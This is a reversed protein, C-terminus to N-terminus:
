SDPPLYIIFADNEWVKKYNNVLLFDKLYKNRKENNPLLLYNDALNQPWNTRVTNVKQQIVVPRKGYVKLASDLEQKFMESDYASPWSNFIFPKTDTIYYFMPVGDYVLVYDNKSIYKESEALLSNLSEARQQTTYVGKLHKNKVTYHMFARNSNDFFPYFYVYCFGIFLGLGIGFKRLVRLLYDDFLLLSQYTKHDTQIRVENQISRIKYIYDFLLPVPIWLCYRGVSILDGDSGVPLILLMAIGFLFLLKVEKPYQKNFFLSFGLIFILGAVAFLLMNWLRTDRYAAYVSIIM